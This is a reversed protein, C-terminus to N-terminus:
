KLSVVVVVVVLSLAKRTVDRVVVVQLLQEVLLFRKEFM